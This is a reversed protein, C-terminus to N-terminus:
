DVATQFLRRTLNDLRPIRPKGGSAKWKAAPKRALFDVRDGRTAPTDDRSIM